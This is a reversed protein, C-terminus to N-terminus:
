FGAAEAQFLLDALPDANQSAKSPRQREVYMAYLQEFARQFCREKMYHRAATGMQHRRTKERGLTGMAESLQQVNGGEVVLGTEGPLMNEHPGGCDTVIVPIGSAQAELVVNGFTDTTSPFVFVDCSAYLSALDDGEICGTFLVPLDALDSEMQKRYPGDGAIVLRAHRGQATLTQFAESLLHLNKEKSVRGVYLFTVADEHLGYRESLIGNRNRPHFRVVDVGRPYVRIKESAVGRQVLESGTARSPVYIADLQNYFWLMFRWSMDEIFTDETLAKAYQPFATHYTGSIPLGLIRAIGLAAMGVPGPTAVHLHTFGEEYCHQLMKLFPPCLLKLEPYEPLAVSGVPTFAHVGRQFPQRPAICTVITYDKELRLATDLQQQLTKAVGNVELFTDTFHAVRCAAAPQGHEGNAPLGFHRLVEGSWRRQRTFHSYGVFYPALLAYFAATSGVSHFVDFLKASVARDLVRNGFQVLVKDAIANVFEFWKADLDEERQGDNVINMLQPDNQILKAAEFRALQFLSDGGPYERGARRRAFLMQFWAGWSDGGEPAAQLSRDMFKLFLDKHIHRALGFRDKYYQYAIGYVSRAFSQPTAPTQRIRALGNQVADFFEPVTEAAPAETYTRALNLSSHDDSGGVLNKVWPEPFEPEIDHVDAMTSIRNPTLGRLIAKVADNMDGCVDGNLEWTKFLLALKEIHAMTLRANVFFLPHACAHALRRERCYRVLDYINERASNLDKHQGETIDYVLVHVKCRDEPFYTTYECSIFVDPQHAIDLCGDIVNHDTITAASMGKQKALRYLELPETFSEPCGLKQMLWLAPRKSYKSHCHLDIKM